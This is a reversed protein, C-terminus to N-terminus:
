FFVFVPMVKYCLLIPCYLIPENYLFHGVTSPTKNKCVVKPVGQIYLTNQIKASLYIM